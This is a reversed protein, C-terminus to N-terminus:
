IVEGRKENILINKDDPIIKFEKILNVALIGTLITTLLDAIAQSYIVGNFGILNPLILIIPIFMIGQRCISLIGGERGKGFALFFTAIVMQFGFTIFVIANVKLATSGITKVLYDNSFISMIQSSYTYMLTAAIICFVTAQITSVKMIEKLRNFNKAGYNYGAIPQVGKSYGFIVYTAVAFVRTVIGMAAVQETGYISAKLTILGM